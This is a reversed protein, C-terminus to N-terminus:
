NLRRRKRDINKNKMLRNIRRNLNYEKKRHENIINNINTNKLLIDENEEELIRKGRNLRKTLTGIEQSIKAMKIKLIEKKSKFDEMLNKMEKKKEEIYKEPLLKREWKKEDLVDQYSPIEEYLNWYRPLDDEALNEGMAYDYSPLNEKANFYWANEFEEEMLNNDDTFDDDDDDSAYYVERGFITVYNQGSRTRVM